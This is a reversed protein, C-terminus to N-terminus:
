RPITDWQNETGTEYKKNRPCYRLRDSNPCQQFHMINTNDDVDQFKLNRHGTEHIITWKLINLSASGEIIIIPDSSWGAAPFEVPAGRAHNKTLPSSLVLTNGTISSITVTEKNVGRGVEPQDGATFFNGDAVAAIQLRTAGISARAILYYYSKMDRVIAIRTKTGTGRMKRKIINLERGGGAAIDFTLAGNNDKDYRVDMVSNDTKFNTINFKVVAEKLKANATGQFQSYDENPFRLTTGASSSDTVKAVCVDVIKESYIELSIKGCTSPVPCKTKATLVTHEKSRLPGIFGSNTDLKLDFSASSPATIPMKLLHSDCQFTFDTGLLGGEIDVKIFSHDLSKISIHDDNSDAPTDYDDYGYRNHGSKSFKVNTVSIKVTKTADPCGESKRTVNIVEADRASSPKDRGIVTVTASTPNVLDIKRSSTTWLYSGPSNGELELAFLEIRGGNVPVIRCPANLTFDSKAEPCPRKKPCGKVPGDVGSSNRPNSPKSTKPM